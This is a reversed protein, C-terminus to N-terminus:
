QLDIPAKDGDQSHAVRREELDDLRGEMQQIREKGIGDERDKGARNIFRLQEGQLTLELPIELANEREDEVEKVRGRELTNRENEKIIYEQVEGDKRRRGARRGRRGRRGEMIRSRRSGGAVRSGSGIEINVEVRLRVENGVDDENRQEGPEM